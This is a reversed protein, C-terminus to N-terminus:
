CGGGSICPCLSVGMLRKPKCLLKGFVLRREGQTVEAAGAAPKKAGGAASTKAAAPTAAVADKSAAARPPPPHAAAKAAKSLSAAGGGARGACGPCGPVSAGNCVACPGQLSAFSPPNLLKTGGEAGAASTDATAGADATDVESKRKPPPPPPRKRKPPPGEAGWAGTKSNYYQGSNSDYYFGSGGGDYYYGSTTDYLWEVAPADPAVTNGLGSSRYEEEARRKLESDLMDVAENHAQQAAVQARAGPGLVGGYAVPEAPLEPGFMDEPRGEAADMKYAKAAKAEIAAMTRKAMDEEKQENDAKRRMNRLHDKVNQQHGEANEHIKISKPNKAMWCKCLTCWHRGQSVWFETM